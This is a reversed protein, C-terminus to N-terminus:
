ITTPYTESGSLHVNILNAISASIEVSEGPNIVTHWDDGVYLIGSPEVKESIFELGSFYVKVIVSRSSDCNHILMEKLVTPGNKEPVTYVTTKNTTALRGSYFKKLEMYM